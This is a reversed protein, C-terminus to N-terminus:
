GVSYKPAHKDIKKCDVFLTLKFVNFGPHSEVLELEGNHLQVFSKALTLGIGTGNRQQPGDIRYFPEFIKEKMASPIITGNNGVSIIVTQQEKNFGAQIFVATEAYKVANGVLNSLVKRMAEEDAEIMLDIGPIQKTYLLGKQRIVPLYYEVVEELLAYINIKKLELRFMGTETQRLDLIQQMLAVLRNTNKEMMQIDPLIEPFKKSKGILNELPLKILTLPTKVEHAVNTFFHMKEEFMTKEKKVNAANDYVRFLYLLLACSLFVYISRAWWTAWWPPLVEIKLLATQRSWQHNIFAQVVFEYSGASLNTFYASRNASLETWSKDLGRMQYRYATIEPATYSLAAFDITISSQQHTLEINRTFLISEPLLTSDTAVSVDRNNVKLGTVFVPPAFFSNNEFQDPNFGIMGKTSGFYLIGTDDKYGSSYNFQDNLLGMAKTFVVLKGKSPELKALGRDTSIWINRDKELAKYCANSPLGDKTTFHKGSQNVPDFFFLGNEMSSMWIGQQGDEFISIVKARALEQLGPGRFPACVGNSPNYIYVGSGATGLWIRGLHDEVATYFSLDAPVNEVLQFDNASTNFKYFGIESSAYLDGSKTHLFSYVFNSKLGNGNPSSTFHKILRHTQANVQYIGHEFTGIWLINGVQLLGHVNLNSFVNEEGALQFPTFQNLSVNFHYLGADETGIWLNGKLDSCIGRVVNGQLGSECNASYYKHFRTQQTSFYNIGGFYTGIWIGGEMDRNLNYVANDSLTYPDNSSRKLLDAKKTHRNYIYLGSETACWLTSDDYLLLDRVYISIGNEYHTLIDKYTGTTCNFEKFGQALTGIYFISDNAQVIKNVRYSTSLASKNFVSYSVFQDAEENYHYINGNSSGFWLQGDQKVCLTTAPFYKNYAYTTLKRDISLRYINRGAIFWINGKKDERIVNVWASVDFALKLKEKKRDLIYIGTPGGVWITNRSDRFIGTAAQNQLDGTGNDEFSIKSFRYGDFRDLGNRTCIWVFGNEDQHSAFVTNGSLGDEMQYHKFYYPQARVIFCFGYIYICILLIRTIM